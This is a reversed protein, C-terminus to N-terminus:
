MRALQEDAQKCRKRSFHEKPLVLDCPNSTIKGNLKDGAQYHKQCSVTKKPSVKGSSIQLNSKNTRTDDKLVYDVNAAINKNHTLKNGRTSYKKTRHSKKKSSVAGTSMQGQSKAPPSDDNFLFGINNM